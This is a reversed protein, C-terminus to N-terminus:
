FKRDAEYQRMADDFISQDHAEQEEIEKKSTTKITRENRKREEMEKESSKTVDEQFHLQVEAKMDKLYTLLIDSTGTSSTAQASLEKVTAVRKEIRDKEERKKTLSHVIRQKEMDTNARQDLLTMRTNKSAEIFEENEKKQDELKKRQAGGRTDILQRTVDDQKESLKADQVTLAQIQDRNHKQQLDCSQQNKELVEIDRSIVAIERELMAITDHLDSVDATVGHANKKDTQRGEGQNQKETEARLRNVEGLKEAIVDQNEKVREIMSKLKRIEEESLKDGKNGM